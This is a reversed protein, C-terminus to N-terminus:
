SRPPQQQGPMGYQQGQEPQGYQPQGYQQGPGHEQGPQVYQEGPQWYQPQRTASAQDALRDQLRAYRFQYVPGVTRLVNRKHADNLFRMLRVPTHRRRALQLFALSSQWAASYMLGFVLGGALGGVLGFVLGSTLGGALGGVLGFALGFGLLCGMLDNAAVGFFLGCVLGYLLGHVLGAVLGLGSFYGHAPASPGLVLWHVQWHRLGSVLRAVHVKAFGGALGGALGTPLSFVLGFVLKSTLDRRWSALPSPSAKDAEPLSLDGEIGGVLGDVGTLAGLLGFVLGGLLGFVLAGVLGGVLGGVLLGVLSWRNFVHRWHLSWTSGPSEAEAWSVVGGELGGVLGIGLGLGLGFKLGLGLWGALGGALAFVLAFGLATTIAQPAGSAWQPIHWWELDHTGDQNMRAAIYRLAHEAKQLNYRLPKHGPRYAVRLIRALLYNQIEEADRGATDCFALLERIDDDSTRYDDHSPRYIDRVLTLTLPSSLAKAIPSNPARSLRDTLEHGWRPQPNLQVATLYKAAAQPDVDQLELAAAGELHAGRAAAAMEASRALVVVRFFAQQSLAQLAAPRLRKPIEDLGDLIVSVRGETVLKAAEAAGGKGAFLPYTQRLRAALWDQVETGPDWGHFTFMVPVPVLRRDEKREQEQRYRLAALVLLVAASTKGSGPAGVIVLRGSGLGGYVAHLDQLRGDQLQKQEIRPVGPLPRFRQSDAAVWLPGAVPQSPGKWRVAIPESPLFPLQAAARKKVALALRDAVDDLARERNEGGPRETGASRARAILGRIADLAITAIAAVFAWFIALDGRHPSWWVFLTFGVVVAVVAVVAVVPWLGRDKQRM